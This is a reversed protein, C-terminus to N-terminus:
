EKKEEKKEAAPAEKPAEGEAPAAEEKVLEAIMAEPIKEERLKTKIASAPKDKMQNIIEKAKAEFEARREKMEQELRKKEEELEKMEEATLETKGTEIEKKFAGENIDKIVERAQKGEVMVGMSDCTGIVEKVRSFADKGLLSDEKMKAIKIIQEIKLDAVKDVLPNGAGKEIKAEKKILASAPPTGVTVSFEKTDSDVIVKVPVQMGKFGETKKNIEAVVQGINVGLPGLAPGLPPAASAKGGEVLAEVTETAM